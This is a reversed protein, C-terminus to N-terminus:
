EVFDLTAQREKRRVPRTTLVKGSLDDARIAMSSATWRGASIFHLGWVEFRNGTALWIALKQRSRAKGLCPAVKARTM